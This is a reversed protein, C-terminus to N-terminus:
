HDQLQSRDVRNKSRAKREERQAEVIRKSEHEKSVTHKSTSLMRVDKTTKSAISPAVRIEEELAKIEDNSGQADNARGQKELTELM